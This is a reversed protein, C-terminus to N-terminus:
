ASLRLSLIKISVYYSSFNQFVAILTNFNLMWSCFYSLFVKLISFHAINYAYHIKYHM